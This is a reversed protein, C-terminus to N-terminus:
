SAPTELQAVRDFLEDMTDLMIRLRKPDFPMLATTSGGSQAVFAEVNQRISDVHWRTIRDDSM